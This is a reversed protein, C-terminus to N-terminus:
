SAGMTVIVIVIVESVGGRLGLRYKGNFGLVRM